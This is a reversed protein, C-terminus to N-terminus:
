GRRRWLRRAESLGAAEALALYIVGFVALVLLPRLDYGILRIYNIDSLLGAVGWASAAGLLAVSWAKFLFPAPLHIRGVRRALATKLLFYEVWGSLGASVTLGVTGLGLEIGALEPRKLRLSELLFATLYPRLPFAFLWGLSGTLVVRVIAFKLPTRIDGLAYFASSYLRGWTAALLGVVSGMLIYWVFLTDEGSFKGTQYLAAVIHRGLFLMATVSPIVFVAINRTGGNVRERLASFDGSERDANRSMEPLEAAAVSMGFLSVPLLYITQAYALSAVAGAGLFSAIMGDIYASLQVVGRSLLIPGLNRFVERVPALGIELRPRLRGAARLVFPVQVALQLFSGVVSGWALKVALDDLGAHGGYMLLTVIM